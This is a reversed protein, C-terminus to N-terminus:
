IRAGDVKVGTADGEGVEGGARRKARKQEIGRHWAAWDEYRQEPGIFVPQGLRELGARRWVLASSGALQEV